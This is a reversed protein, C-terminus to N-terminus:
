VTRVKRRRVRGPLWGLRVGSRRSGGSEFFGALGEPFLIVVVVTFIGLGVMRWEALGMLAEDFLMVVACGLLPGWVRGTGGVILGTLLFLLTSFDLITPGIANFHGAYYGGLLGTFFGSLSFVLVQYKIRDIGRAAACSANDRLARFAHGLPSNIILFAFVSGLAVLLLGLYYEGAVANRYGLLTRFGFDGFGSLGSTGGTLTQCIGNEFSLCDTDAIILAQMAAAIALTLLAVYAGRLRLTALGVVTSVVVACVAGLPAALWMSWDLHFALMASVYGGVAFVMMQALSFIGAVGFVLNWQTVVGFWIFFLIMQGLLYRSSTLFPIAALVAFLGLALLASHRASM